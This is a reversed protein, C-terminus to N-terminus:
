APVAEVISDLATTPIIRTLKRRGRRAARPIRTRHTRQRGADRNGGPIVVIEEHNLFRAVVSV